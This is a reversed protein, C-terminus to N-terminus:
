ILSGDLIRSLLKFYCIGRIILYVFHAADMTEFQKEDSPGWYDDRLSSYRRGNEIHGRLLSSAVSTTESATDDDTLAGDTDEDVELDAAEAANTATAAM